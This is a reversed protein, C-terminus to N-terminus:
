EANTTNATPTPSKVAKPVKQFHSEYMKTLRIHRIEGPERGEETPPLVGDPCMLNLLTADLKIYSPKDALQLKHHKIYKWMLVIVTPRPIMGTSLDPVPVSGDKGGEWLSLCNGKLFQILQDSVKYPRRIAADANGSRRRKAGGRKGIGGGSATAGKAPNTGHKSYHALLRNIGSLDLLKFHDTDPAPWHYHLQSDKKYAAAQAEPNKVNSYGKFAIRMANRASASPTNTLWSLMRMHGVRAGTYCATRATDVELPKNTNTSISLVNWGRYERRLPTKPVKSADGQGTDEAGEATQLVALRCDSRYYLMLHELICSLVGHGKSVDFINDCHPLVVRSRVSDDSGVYMGIVDSVVRGYGANVRRPVCTPVVQGGVFSAMATDTATADTATKRKKTTTTVATTAAAAPDEPSTEGEEATISADGTEIPVPGTTEDEAATAAASRKRGSSTTYLTSSPPFRPVFHHVLKLGAIELPLNFCGASDADANLVAADVFICMKSRDTTLGAKEMDSIVSAVADCGSVVPATVCKGDADKDTAALYNMASRIYSTPGSSRAFYMCDVKKEKPLESRLKSIIPDSCTEVTLPIPAVCVGSGRATSPAHQVEDSGSGGAGGFGATENAVDSVGGGGIGGATADGDNTKNSSSKKTSPVRTDGANGASVGPAVALETAPAATKRSKKASKAPVPTTATTATTLNSASEDTNNIASM